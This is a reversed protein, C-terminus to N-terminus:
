VTHARSSACSSSSRAGHGAVLWLVSGPFSCLWCRGALATASGIGASSVVPSWAAHGSGSLDLRSSRFGDLIRCLRRGRRGPDDVIDLADDDALGVLHREEDGRQDGTPMYEEFVDGPRRLRDERACERLRDFVRRESADLAGRAEMSRQRSRGPASSGSAPEACHSRASRSSSLQAPPTRDM